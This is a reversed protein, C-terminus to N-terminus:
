PNVFLGSVTRNKTGGVSKKTFRQMHQQKSRSTSVLDAISADLDFFPLATPVATM